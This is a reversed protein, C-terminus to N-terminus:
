PYGTSGSESDDASTLLDANAETWKAFARREPSRPELADLLLLFFQHPDAVPRGGSVVLLYDNGRDDSVIEWSDTGWSEGGHRLNVIWSIMHMWTEPERLGNRGNHWAWPHIDALNVIVRDWAARTMWPQDTEGLHLARELGNIDGVSASSAGFYFRISTAVNYKTLRLTSGDDFTSLFRARYYAESRSRHRPLVELWLSGCLNVIAIAVTAAVVIRAGTVGIRSEVVLPYSGAIAALCIPMTTLVAFEVEGPFWWLFFGLFTLAWTAAFCLLLRARGRAFRGTAVIAAAGAVAFAILMGPRQPILASLGWLHSELLRVVGAAGVNSAHGWRVGGAFAYSFVFRLFSLPESSSIAVVRYAIWYASLVVAGALASVTVLARAVERSRAVLVGVAMPILFLVASQHYLVAFVWAVALGARARNSQPSEILRLFFVTALGLAAVSPVYVEAQTAFVLIGTTSGYLALGLLGLRQSGLWELGIWYVALLAVFTFALNHVQAALVVDHVGTVAALGLHVSRVAANFLLHHPHFLGGGDRARTLYALSDGSQEVAATAALVAVIGLSLLVGPLLGVLRDTSRIAPEVPAVCYM